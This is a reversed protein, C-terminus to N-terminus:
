SYGEVHWRGMSFKQRGVSLAQYVVDQYVEIVSKSNDPKISITPSINRAGMFQAYIGLLAYIKDRPDTAEMSSTVDLLDLLHCGRGFFFLHRATFLTYGDEKTTFYSRKMILDACIALEHWSYVHAGVMMWVDARAVEQVVWIRRFWEFRYLWMVYEWSSHCHGPLNYAATRPESPICAWPTRWHPKVEERAIEWVKGLLALAPKAHGDQDEGLWVMVASARDFVDKMFSVQESRENLDKRNICLANIWIRRFATPKERSSSASGIRVISSKGGKTYRVRQLAAGLNPM